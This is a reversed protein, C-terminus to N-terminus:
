PVTCLRQRHQDQRLYDDRIASGTSTLVILVTKIIKNKLYGIMQIQIACTYQANASKAQVM